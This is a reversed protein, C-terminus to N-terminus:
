GAMAVGGVGKAWKSACHVLLSAAGAPLFAGPPLPLLLLLLRARVSLDSVIRQGGPVPSVSSLALFTDISDQPEGM